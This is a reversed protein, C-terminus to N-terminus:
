WMLKNKENEFSTWLIKVSNIVKGEKIMDRTKYQAM